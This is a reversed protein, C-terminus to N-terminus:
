AQAPWYSELPQFPRLLFSPAPATDPHPAVAVSVPVAPDAPRECQGEVVEVLERERRVREELEARHRAQSRLREDERVPLLPRGGGRPEPREPRPAPRRGDHALLGQPPLSRGGGWPGASRVGGGGTRVSLARPASSETVKQHM